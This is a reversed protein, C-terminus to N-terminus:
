QTELARPIERFKKTICKKHYVYLRYGDAWIFKRFIFSLLIEDQSLHCFNGFREIKKILPSVKFLGTNELSQSGRCMLGFVSIQCNSFSFKSLKLLLIKVTKFAFIQCNLIGCSGIKLLLVYYWKWCTWFMSKGYNLWSTTVQLAENM